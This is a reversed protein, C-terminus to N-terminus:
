FEEYRAPDQDALRGDPRALTAIIDMDQPSLEFDFLSLNEIQREKSSAKPIPVAGLQVHWRLIVQPISKGLRDAIKKITDDKLLKSARGLPSWSETVIGHAKDWARQEDQPFYPHLEVQNVVPTVGTEKILKELHEPLFNCVGISRILGKKRAEILAQWAEVYLDKSPNPWHILYLDYYDLQARYLSEEVTAIAEEFHHHRGPLKSVIRLKDRAIGAERVAEGVAGENEYNFASDLLRYGVKIASVIDDVGASGNLKYTGFGVAPLDNGDNLRISPISIPSM